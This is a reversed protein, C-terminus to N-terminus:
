SGSIPAPMAASICGLVRATNTSDGPESENSICSTGAMAAAGVGFAGHHQHVIGPRAREIETREFLADIERDLGAGLIDAAMGVHHEAGDRCVLCGPLPEGIRYVRHSEADAGVVDIEAQASQAGHAHPERMVMLRSHLHRAPEGLPRFDRAHEM